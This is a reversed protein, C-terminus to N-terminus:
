ESDSRGKIIMHDLVHQDGLDLQLWGGPNVTGCCSCSRAKSSPNKDIIHTVLFTDGGYQANTTVVADTLDILKIAVVLITLLSHIQNLNLLTKRRTSM